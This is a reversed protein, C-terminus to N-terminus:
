MSGVVFVLGLCAYFRNSYLFVCRSRYASSYSDNRKETGLKSCYMVGNYHNLRGHGFSARMVGVVNIV